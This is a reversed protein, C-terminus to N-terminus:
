VRPDRAANDMTKKYASDIGNFMMSEEVMQACIDKSSFIPLLYLWQVQVKGWEELTKNV